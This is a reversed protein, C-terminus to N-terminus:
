SLALRSASVGPEAYYFKYAHSFLANGLARARNDLPARKERGDTAVMGQAEWTDGNSVSWHIAAVDLSM